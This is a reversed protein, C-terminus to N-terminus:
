VANEIAKGDFSFRVRDFCDCVGVDLETAMSATDDAARLAVQEVCLVDHREANGVKLLM